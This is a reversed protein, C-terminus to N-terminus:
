CHMLGQQWAVLIQNSMAPATLIVSGQRHMSCASRRLVRGLWRHAQQMYEEAAGQWAVTRKHMHEATAVKQSAVQTSPAPVGAASSQWTLRMSAAHAAYCCEAM